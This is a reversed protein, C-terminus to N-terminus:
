LQRSIHCDEDKRRGDYPENKAIALFTLITDGYKKERIVTWAPFHWGTDLRHHEVIVQGGPDLLPLASLQRVTAPLAPSFYPPDLFILAFKEGRKVLDALALNVPRSIVMGYDTLGTLALNDKIIKACQRNNEVFVSFVAGRSLAEIGVSGNGAFLDLFRSGDVNPALINFLSERVM